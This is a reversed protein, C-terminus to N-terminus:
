APEIHSWALTEKRMIKGDPRVVVDWFDTPRRADAGVVTVGTNLHWAADSTAKFARSHPAVSPKRPVAMPSRVSLEVVAALEYDDPYTPSWRATSVAHGATQALRELMAMEHPVAKLHGVQAVVVTSHGDCRPCPETAGCVECRGSM